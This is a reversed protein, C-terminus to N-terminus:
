ESFNEGCFLIDHFDDSNMKLDISVDLNFSM